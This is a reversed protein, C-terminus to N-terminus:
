RKIWRVKGSKQGVILKGDKKVWCQLCELVPKKIRTGKYVIEKSIGVREVFKDHLLHYKAKRKAEALTECAPYYDWAGSTCVYLLHYKGKRTRAYHLQKRTKKITAM